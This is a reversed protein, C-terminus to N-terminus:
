QSETFLYCFFVVVVRGDGDIISVVILADDKSQVSLIKLCNSELSDRVKGVNGVTSHSFIAMVTIKVNKRYSM